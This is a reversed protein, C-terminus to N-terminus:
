RDWGGKYIDLTQQNLYVTAERAENAYHRRVARTILAAVAFGVDIISRGTCSLELAEEDSYLTREYGEVEDPNTPNVSYLVINEAALRADLFLGVRTKYKVQQWLDARASMSDLASIVVDSLPVGVQLRDPVPSVATNAYEGIIADLAEVKPKSDLASIVVDSLPVGEQLRAAIGIPERGTQERIGLALAAVKTIGQDTPRYLQNPINHEDVTDPDVLTLHQVGLKALALAAFSGIGGCGVITVSASVKDPDFWDRQRTYDM